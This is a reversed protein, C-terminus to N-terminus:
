TVTITLACSTAGYLNTSVLSGAYTGPTTPTGVFRAAGFNFTFGSITNITALTLGPPMNNFFFELAHSSEIRNAESDFADTGGPLLVGSVISYALPGGAAGMPTGGPQLIGSIIGPPGIAPDFPLEIAPIDVSGGVPGIPTITFGLGIFSPVYNDASASFASREIVRLQPGLAAALPGRATAFYRAVEDPTVAYAREIVRAGPPLVQFFRNATTANGLYANDEPAAM